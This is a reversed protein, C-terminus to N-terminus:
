SPALRCGLCHIPQGLHNKPSGSLVREKDWRQSYRVFTTYHCDVYALYFRRKTVVRDRGTAKIEKEFPVFLDSWTVEEDATSWQSSEIVAYTENALQVGGFEISTDEPLGNLQVFCWIEGPLQGWDDGWDFM